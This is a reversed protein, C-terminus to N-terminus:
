NQWRLPEGRVIEMFNETCTCTLPHSLNGFAVSFIRFNVVAQTPHVLTVSLLCVSLCFCIAFTFRLERESFIAHTPNIHASDTCRNKSSNSCAYLSVCCACSVENVTLLQLGVDCVLAREASSFVPDYVFCCRRPVQLVM